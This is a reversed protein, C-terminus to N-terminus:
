DDIGWVIQILRGVLWGLLAYVIMAVLLNVDFIANGFTPSIFLTSFPAVFPASFDYIFQAFQNELNANSLRLFFRLLLLIELAGVLFYIISVARDVVAQRRAVKLRHEEQHLRRRELERAELDQDRSDYYDQQYDQQYTEQPYNEQPYQNPHQNPYPNPSQNPYPNTGYDDSYGNQRDPDRNTM